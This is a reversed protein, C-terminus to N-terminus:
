RMSDYFRSMTELTWERGEGKKWDKPVYKSAKFGAAVLRKISGGKTLYKETLQKSIRTHEKKYDYPLDCSKLSPYFYRDSEKSTTMIPFVRFGLPLASNTSNTFSVQLNEFDPKLGFNSEPHNLYDGTEKGPPYVGMLHSQASVICRHVISSYLETQFNNIKPKAKKYVPSQYLHFEPDEPEFLNPYDKRLQSGLLFHMREGNGTLNEIGILDIEEYFPSSTKFHGPHVHTRAGHRFLESV